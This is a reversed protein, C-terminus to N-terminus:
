APPTSAVIPRSMIALTYDAHTWIVRLIKEIRIQCKLGWCLLRLTKNVKGKKINHYKQMEPQTRIQLCRRLLPALVQTRTKYNNTRMMETKIQVSAINLLCQVTPHIPRRIMQTQCGTTVSIWMLVVSATEIDLVIKGGREAKKILIQYQRRGKRM